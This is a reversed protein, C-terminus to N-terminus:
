PEIPEADQTSQKVSVGVLATRFREREADAVGNVYDYGMAVFERTRANWKVSALCPGRVQEGNVEVISQAIQQQRLMLSWLTADVAAGDMPTCRGAAVILDDGTMARIRCSKIDLGDFSSLDLLKEAV